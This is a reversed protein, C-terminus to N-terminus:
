RSLAKADRHSQSKGKIGELEKERTMILAPSPPLSRYHSGTIKNQAGTSKMLSVDRVVIPSLSATIVSIEEAKMAVGFRALNEM